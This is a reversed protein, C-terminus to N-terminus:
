RRGGSEAVPPSTPCVLPALWAAEAGGAVRNGRVTWHLDRLKYLPEPSERSAALLAPTLDLCPTGTRLCHESLLRNPLLPDLSDSATGPPGSQRRGELAQRRLEPYVQLASPYIVIATRSGGEAVRAQIRGLDTLVPHWARALRASDAPVHFTALEAVLMALFASEEFIPGALAPDREGVRRGPDIVTGGRPPGSPRAREVASRHRVSRSLRWTNRVYTWAYSHGLAGGPRRPPPPGDNGAYFHVVVLDPQFTAFALELIARYDRTDSAGIGFNLVELDRPGCAERLHREVLTTVTDPYGVSGYTFSDGLALVTFRGPPKPVAFEEDNLGLSNTWHNFWNRHPVVEGPRSALYEELSGFAPLERRHRATALYRVDPSFRAILRLGLEAVVGSLLLGVGVALIRFIWHHRHRTSGM